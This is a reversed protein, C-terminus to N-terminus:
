DFDNGPIVGKYEATQTIVRVGPFAYDYIWEEQLDGQADYIFKRAEVVEPNGSMTRNTFKAISDLKEDHNYFYLESSTQSGNKFSAQSTLNGGADRHEVERITDIGPARIELIKVGPITDIVFSDDYMTSDGHHVILMKVQLLGSDIQDYQYNYFTASGHVGAETSIVLMVSDRALTDYHTFSTERYANWKLLSFRTMLTEQENYFRLTFLNPGWNEAKRLVGEKDYSKRKVLTSVIKDGEKSHSFYEITTSESRSCGSLISIIGILFILANKM